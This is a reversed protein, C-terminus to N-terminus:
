KAEKHEDKHEGSEAHEHGHEHDHSLDGALEQGNVTAHFHGHLQEVDSSPLKDLPATFESAKDGGGAPEFPIEVEEGNAGDEHMEVSTAEVPTKLDEGLLYLRAVKAENDIVFEGHVKHDDGFEVVHGGHPGEHHEHEHDDTAPAKGAENYPTAGQQSNCGVVYGAAVVLGFVWGYMRM